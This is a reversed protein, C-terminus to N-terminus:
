AVRGQFEPASDGLKKDDGKWNFASMPCPVGRSICEFHIDKYWGAAFTGQTRAHRLTRETMGLTDTFFDEGLAEIIQTSPNKSM